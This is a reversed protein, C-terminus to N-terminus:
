NGHAHVADQLSVRDSRTSVHAVPRSVFALSITPFHDSVYDVLAGILVVLGAMELTEEFTTLLFYIATEKGFQEVHYGEALELGLAGGLFMVAALRTLYRTREPLRLYFRLFCGALTLTLIFGPVVWAFYLIGLEGAGLMARVPEILREHVSMLEDFAMAVFGLGLLGWEMSRTGTRRRECVFILAFLMAAAAMLAASFFSPVNLELEVYLLKMVKRAVSSDPLVFRHTIVAATSAAVLVATSVALLRTIVASNIRVPERSMQM